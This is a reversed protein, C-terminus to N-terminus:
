LCSPRRSWGERSYERKIVQMIEHSGVRQDQSSEKPRNSIQFQLCLRTFKSQEQHSWCSLSCTKSQKRNKCSSFVSLLKQDRREREREHTWTTAGPSAPCDFKAPPALVLEDAPPPNTARSTPASDESAPSTPGGSAAAVADGLGGRVGTLGWFCLSGTALKGKRKTTRQKWLQNERQARATNHSHVHCFTTLDSDRFPSLFGASPSPLAPVYTLGFSGSERSPV